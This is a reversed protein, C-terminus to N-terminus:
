RGAEPRLDRLYYRTVTSGAHYEIKELPTQVSVAHKPCILKGNLKNWNTPIAISPDHLGPGVRFEKGFDETYCGDVDCTYRYQKCIGM